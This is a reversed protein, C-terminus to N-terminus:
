HTSPMSTSSVRTRPIWKAFNRIHWLPVHDSSLALEFDFCLRAFYSRVKETDDLYGKGGRDYQRSVISLASDDPKAVAPRQKPGAVESTSESPQDEQPREPVASQNEEDVSDLM